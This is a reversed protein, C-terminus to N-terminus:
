GRRRALVGRAQEQKREGMSSYAVHEYELALRDVADRLLETLAPRSVRREAAVHAPEM